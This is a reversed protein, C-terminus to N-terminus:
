CCLRPCAQARARRAEASAKGVRRYRARLSSSAIARGGAVVTMGRSPPSDLVGRSRPEIVAAEPISSRGTLAPRHCRTRLQLCAKDNERRTEGSSQKTEVRWIWSPAPFAPHRSAGATRQAFLARLFFRVAAYLHHRDSPRGQAIAPRSIGHEGPLRVKRQGGEGNSNSSATWGTPSACMKSGAQGYCRRGPGCPKATRM